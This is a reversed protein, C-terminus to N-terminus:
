PGVFFSDPSFKNTSKRGKISFNVDGPAVGDDIDFWRSGVGFPMADGFNGDDDGITLLFQFAPFGQHVRTHRNWEVDRTQRADIIGHHGACRWKM